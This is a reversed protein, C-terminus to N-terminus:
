AAPPATSERVVLNTCGAARVTGLKASIARKDKVPGPAILTDANDDYIVVSLQDDEHLEEVLAQAAQHLVEEVGAAGGRGLHARAEVLQM